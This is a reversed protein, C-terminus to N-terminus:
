TSASRIQRRLDDIVPQVDDVDVGLWVCATILNTFATMRRVEHRVREGFVLAEALTHEAIVSWKANGVLYALQHLFADSLMAVEDGTPRSEAAIGSLDTIIRRSAAWQPDKTLQDLHRRAIDFTILGDWVEISLGTSTDCRYAIGM